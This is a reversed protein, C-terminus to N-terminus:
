LSRKQHFTKNPNEIYLKKSKTFANRSIPKVSSKFLHDEKPDIVFAASAALNYLLKM